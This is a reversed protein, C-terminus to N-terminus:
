RSRNISNVIQLDNIRHFNEPLFVNVESADERGCGHGKEVTGDETFLMFCVTGRLVVISEAKPPNKHCHPQVYSGPQIANLMRQLTDQPTKHLPLIIRGRASQRSNEITEEILSQTIVTVSDDPSSVSKKTNM